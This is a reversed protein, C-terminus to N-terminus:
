QSGSLGAGPGDSPLPDTGSGQLAGHLQDEGLLLGDLQQPRGLLLVHGGPADERGSGAADLDPALGPVAVAAGAAAADLQAADLPRGVGGGPGVDGDVAAPDGPGAPGAPDLGGVQELPDEVQGAQGVGRGPGVQGRGFGALGESGPAASTGERRGQGRGSTQEIASAFRTGMTMSCVLRPSRENSMKERSSLSRIMKRPVGISSVMALRTMAWSRCRSLSSGSLSM